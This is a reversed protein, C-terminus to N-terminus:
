FAIYLELIYIRDSIILRLVIYYKSLYIGNKYCNEGLGADIFLDLGLFKSLGLAKLTLM